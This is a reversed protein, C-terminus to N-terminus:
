SLLKQNCNPPLLKPPQTSTKFVPALLSKDSATTTRHHPRCRPKFLSQFPKWPPQRHMVSTAPATPKVRPQLSFQKGPLPDSIKPKPLFFKRMLEREPQNTITDRHTQTAIAEVVSQLWSQLKQSPSQLTIMLPKSFLCSLSAPIAFPDNEYISYFERVRQKLIRMKKSEEQLVTKGHVVSNRAEWMAQSYKWLDLIVKKGWITAKEQHCKM